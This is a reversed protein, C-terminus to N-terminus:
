SPAANTGTTFHQVAPDPSGPLAPPHPGHQRDWGRAGPAPPPLSRHLARGRRTPRLPHCPLLCRPASV